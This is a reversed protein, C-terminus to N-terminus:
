LEEGNAAIVRRYWYYSKKPYRSLTGQGQDDRDVYIFGYRKSMQGTSSSVLDIIGWTLYGIVPVGEEMAAKMARIHERTYEIRYDDEVTGDLLEDKAGLGNEVIFLPKQYRDYLDNMTIHLGEPDITWGWQSEKLYPNPLTSFANGDKLKKMVEPDASTLRSSYYSFAVFDVAGNKLINRDEDSLTFTINRKRCFSETYAPYEGRSQVDIFLYNERNKEQAALVDAPACTNPYVTGAALMCGMKLDPHKDHAYATILASALCQNHAADFSEQATDEETVCGGLAPVHLVMNIENFTIWYKVQSSYRDVITEAFRLYCGILRRDKWGGYKKLLALPTDFHNITVVPEIGAKELEAFLADYYSLGEKVPEEEEGTPFLRPWSVSLRLAKIGMEKLLRIDEPYRHYFDIAEHSPYYGYDTEMAEKVHDYAYYRSVGAPLIDALCKGRGDADWAGETQNAAIAGGWLFDKEMKMM